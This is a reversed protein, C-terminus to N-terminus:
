TNRELWDMIRHAEDASDTSLCYALGEPRLESSLAKVVELNPIGYLQLGKGAAQCKKLVDLWEYMPKQGAGSVWQIVDIKKIGLIDPLHALAGPGDLHFVCHDLFSAEEELAPIIFRLSIEPSVMCIFDAQITAFRGPSLFPAWGTSWGTKGCGSAEYLTNYVLPYFSRVQTMAEEILDPTDYFDMCLREPGRLASLADVNSHYDGMGVMFKGLAQEALFRSYAVAGRWAPGEKRLALPLGKGWDEIIPKVWNTSPADESFSIEAGLFAAFQDPGLDPSLIPIAEGLYRTHNIGWLFHELGKEYDGQVAYMYRRNEFPESFKQNETQDHKMAIEALVPPRRYIEGNWYHEWVIRIDDLSRETNTFRM